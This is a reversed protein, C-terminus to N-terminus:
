LLSDENHHRKRGTDTAAGWAIVLSIDPRGPVTVTHRAANRGLQTM